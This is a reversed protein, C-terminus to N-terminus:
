LYSLTLSQAAIELTKVIDPLSVHYFIYIYINEKQLLEWKRWSFTKTEKQFVSALPLSTTWQQCRNEAWSFQFLHVACHWISHVVQHVIKFILLFNWYIHVLLNSSITSLRNETIKCKKKKKKKVKVFNLKKLNSRKLKVAGWFLM